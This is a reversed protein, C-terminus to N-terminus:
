PRMGEPVTTVFKKNEDVITQFLRMTPAVKAAIAAFAATDKPLCMGGFGRFLENCDLYVDEITARKVMAQKITQYDAGLAACVEYFENAFVVRLANFVNSYYKALEAETRSMIAVSKPYHGHARRILAADRENDTGIVLLDHHEVFDVAAARERLFEPCFAIRRWAGDHATGVWTNYMQHYAESTGPPVTSKVVVLGRYLDRDRKFLREVTQDVRSVDCTGDPAQPTPVCIFVLEAELLAEFPRVTSDKTDYGIVEHGLRTFGHAIAGGVVGLHGVIGIKM